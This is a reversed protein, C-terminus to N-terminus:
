YQSINRYFILLKCHAGARLHAISSRAPLTHINIFKQFHLPSPIYERQVSSHTSSAVVIVPDHGRSHTESGDMTKQNLGNQRRGAEHSFANSSLERLAWPGKFSEKLFVLGSDRESSINESDM